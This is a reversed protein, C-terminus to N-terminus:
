EGGRRGGQGSTRGRSVRSAPITAAGTIGRTAWPALAALLLSWTHTAAVPSGFPILVVSLAFAARDRPPGLLLTGVLGGLILALRWTRGSSSAGAVVGLYDGFIGPGLIAATLAALALGSSAFWGLAQWRRTALLWVVLVAPTLKVSVLVALLIGLARPRDRLMWAGIMGALIAADVNGVGVLLTLAPVLPLVALGAWGRSGLLLVAVAWATCLAMVVWWLMMGSIGPM